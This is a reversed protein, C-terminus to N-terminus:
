ANPMPIVGMQELMGLTDINVWVEAIKSNELRFLVMGTVTATRGTAPIGMLLGQHTGHSSFRWVVKDGEAVLDEITFQLDPLATLFATVYQKLAESGKVEVPTSPDYQVVNSTYLDDILSVNGRNWGNEIWRRVISKNQEASM